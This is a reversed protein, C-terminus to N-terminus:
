RRKWLRDFKEAMTNSVPPRQEMDNKGNREELCIESRTGFIKVFKLTRAAKKSWM